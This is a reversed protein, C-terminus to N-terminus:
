FCPACDCVYKGLQPKSRCFLNGSVTRLYKRGINEAGSILLTTRPRVHKLTTRMGAFTNNERCIHLVLSQHEQLVPVSRQKTKNMGLIITVRNRPTQSLKNQQELRKMVNKQLLIAHEREKSELAWLARVRKGESRGGKQM